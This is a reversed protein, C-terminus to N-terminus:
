LASGRALGGRWWAVSCVAAFARKGHGRARVAGGQVQPPVPTRRRKGSSASPDRIAPGVDGRGARSVRSRGAPWGQVQSAGDTDGRQRSYPFGSRGVVTSAHAHQANQAPPHWTELRDRDLRRGRPSRHRAPAAASRWRDPRSTKRGARRRTLPRQRARRLAARRERRPRGCRRRRQAREAPVAGPARLRGAARRDESPISQRTLRETDRLQGREEADCLSIAIGPAGARATRGIRHVYSEPVDPLEYNVVHTVQDIDIGRAAIDTAVLARVKSARFAALARERQSQSKNGHIAAVRIGAADLHRAVKDAGRKTRTFVLARSMQPDAFLEVLLSGKGTAANSMSCVSRSATSPRPQLLPRSGRRIACSSTPWSASRRRCPPRSSCTRGGPRFIPSSAASRGCSAWTWCRIPRTSSSSRPARWASM